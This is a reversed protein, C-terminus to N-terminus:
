GFQFSGTAVQRGAADRVVFTPPTLQTGRADSFGSYHEGGAGTVLLAFRVQITQEARAGGLLGLVAGALGPQGTITSVSRSAQLELRLPPGAALMTKQGPTIQFAQDPPDSSVAKVMSGAARRGGVTCSGVRYTGAPLVAKNGQVEPTLAEWEGPRKEWALVLGSVQAKVALEGAPDTCPELRVSRLDGSLAVSFPKGAFYSRSSFMEASEALDFRGSGHRDRLFSDGSVLLWNVQNPARMVRQLTARDGLVFNCNGDVVGFRQREGEVQISAELYNGARLRVQGVPAPSDSLITRVNALNYLFVEAYFRPRWPGIARETPLEVPGFSAQQFNAPGRGVEGDCKSIVPDDTLDGNGNVDAILRDYGQGDGRSEDLLLVMGTRASRPAAIGAPPAGVQAYLPHSSVTKPAQRLAAPRTRSWTGFAGYGGPCRLAEALTMPKVELAFEAADAAILAGVGAVSALWTLRKM